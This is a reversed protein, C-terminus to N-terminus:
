WPGCDEGEFKTRNEMCWEARKPILGRSFHLLFARNPGAVIRIEELGHRKLGGIFKGVWNGQGRVGSKAWRHRIFNILTTCLHQAPALGLM